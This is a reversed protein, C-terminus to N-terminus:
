NSLVVAIAAYHGLGRPESGVQRLQWGYNFDVDLYRDISYHIFFGAGALDVPAQGGSVLRPSKLAGSDYFVGLQALDPFRPQGLFASPSFAPLRIESSFLIGDSGLATDPYYGRVSGVGGGGLQETYPLINDSKQFIGRLIWTVNKPLRTTRTISLKDYVYRSTAGATLTQFAANTNRATFRGPAFVLDNEVATQGYRDTFVGDLIVPFQHVEAQSNLLPFSGFGPFIFLLNNDTYKYDYGLRLHANSLGGQWFPLVRVYRASINFNHGSNDFGDAVIPQLGAFNAFVQLSDHATLPIVDDLSHSAYRGSFSRTYQYSPVQGTGFANGWNIGVNWEQLGLSRVGQNDVGAYVRLPRRDTVKVEMDTTGPAAGEKFNVDPTLFPNTNLLNANETIEAGTIVQGPKLPSMRRVVNASFYKAGVVEIKGLRYEVVVVQVVGSDVNQPPVTTNVFPHDHDALYKNTQQRIKAIDALTFPKGIYEHMLQRFEDTDLLPLKQQQVRWAGSAEIPLGAPQLAERGPVFVLGQLSPVAVANQDAAPAPEPAAADPLTSTTPAPPLAPPLKPTVRTVDQSSGFPTTLANPAQAFAASPACLGAVLALAGAVRVARALIGDFIMVRTAARM